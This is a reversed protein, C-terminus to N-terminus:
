RVRALVRAQERPVVQGPTVLEQALVREREPAREREEPTVSALQPEAPVALVM